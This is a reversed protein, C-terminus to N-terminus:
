SLHAEYQNGNYIGMVYRLFIINKSYGKLLRSGQSCAHYNQPKKDRSHTRFNFSCTRMNLFDGLLNLFIRLFAKFM